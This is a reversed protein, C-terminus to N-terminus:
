KGINKSARLRNQKDTFENLRKLHHARNDYVKKLITKVFEPQIDFNTKLREKVTEGSGSNNALIGYNYLFESGTNTNWSHYKKRANYYKDKIYNGLRAAYGKIGRRPKSLDRGDVLNTDWLGAAFNKVGEEINFLCDRKEDLTLDQDSVVLSVTELFETLDNTM